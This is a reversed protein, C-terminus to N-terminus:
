YRQTQPPVTIVQPIPEPFSIKPEPHLQSRDLVNLKGMKAERITKLNVVVSVRDNGLDYIQFASWANWEFYKIHSMNEHSEARIFFGPVKNKL